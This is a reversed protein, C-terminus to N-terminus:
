PATRWVLGDTLSSAFFVPPTGPLVAVAWSLGLAGTLDSFNTGDSSYLLQRGGAVLLASGEGPAVDIATSPLMASSMAVPPFTQGDDRSASLIAGRYRGALIIAGAGDLYLGNATHDFDPDDSDSWVQTPSTGAATQRWVARAPPAGDILGGAIVTGDASVALPSSPFAFPYAPYTDFGVIATASFSAGRDVSVFVGIPTTTPEELTGRKQYAYVREPRSPDFIVRSVNRGSLGTAPTLAGTGLRLSLLGAGDGGHELLDEDTAILLHDPDSPDVAVDSVARVAGLPIREWSRRDASLRHLGAASLLWARGGSVRVRGLLESMGRESAAFTRGQDVSHFVGAGTTGAFVQDGSLGVASIAYSELCVGTPTYSLEDASQLLGQDETALWTKGAGYAVDYVATAAVSRVIAFSQGADLSQYLGDASTTGILIRTPRAPDIWLGSVDRAGMPFFVAGLDTRSFSQGGDSSAYFGAGDLALLRDRNLPDAAIARLPGGSTPDLGGATLATWGGAGERMYLSTAAATPDQATGEVLLYIREPAGAAIAIRRPRAMPFLGDNVQSFSQGGDDSRYVGDTTSGSASSVAAWVHEGRALSHVRAGSGGLALSRTFSRGADTSRYIGAARLPRGAPGQMGSTSALLTDGGLSLIATVNGGPPGAPTWTDTAAGQATPACSAPIPPPIITTGADPSPTSPGAGGIEGTCAALALEAILVGLLARRM